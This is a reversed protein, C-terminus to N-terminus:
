VETFVINEDVVKIEITHVGESYPLQVETINGKVDGVFDSNGSFLQVRYYFERNIALSEDSVGAPLVIDRFIVNGPGLAYVQNAATEMSQVTNRVSSIKVNEYYTFIAYATAISIIFLIFSVLILYEIAVQAKKNSKVM